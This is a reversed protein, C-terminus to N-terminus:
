TTSVRNKKEPVCTQKLDRLIDRHFVVYSLEIEGVISGRMKLIIKM